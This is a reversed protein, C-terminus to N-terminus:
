RLAELLQERRHWFTCARGAFFALVTYVAIMCLCWLQAKNGILRDQLQLAAVLQSEQGAVLIVGLMMAFGSAVALSVITLVWLSTWDALQWVYLAFASQLLGLALLFLAWRAVFQEEPNRWYDVLDIASPGCSFLAALLLGVALQGAWLRTSAEMEIASPLSNGWDAMRTLWSASPSTAAAEESALSAAQVSATPGSAPVVPLSPASIPPKSLPETSKPSIAPSPVPVPGVNEEATAAPVTEEVKAPLGPLTEPTQVVPPPEPLSPVSVVSQIADQRQSLDASKEVAPIMVPPPLPAPESVPSPHSAPKALAESAAPMEVAPKDAVIPPAEVVHTRAPVQVDAECKPCRVTKGARSDPVMLNHGSPCKVRFPM